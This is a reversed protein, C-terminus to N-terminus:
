TSLSGWCRAPYELSIDGLRELWESASATQESLESPLPISFILTQMYLVFITKFLSRWSLFESVMTVTACHWQHKQKVEQEHKPTIPKRRNWTVAIHLCRPMLNASPRWIILRLLAIKSSRSAQSFEASPVSIPRSWSGIGPSMWTM